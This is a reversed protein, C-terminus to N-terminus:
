ANKWILEDVGELKSCVRALVFLWDSLRNLYRITMESVESDESLAVVRREARRCVCRALHAYANMSSGGPLVFNSLPSLQQEMEDIAEELMKVDNEVLEPPQYRSDEPDNALMSGLVFLRHQIAELQPRYAQLLAQSQLLGLHANLEDVTGYAEIRIHHKAVRKGGLLSTKGGDGKKTYIKM